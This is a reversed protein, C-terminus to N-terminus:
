ILARYLQCGSNAVQLANKMELLYSKVFDLWLRVSARSEFIMSQSYKGLFWSKPVEVHSRPMKLKANFQNPKVEFYNLIRSLNETPYIVYGLSRGRPVGLQIRKRKDLALKLEFSNGFALEVKREDASLDHGAPYFQYGLSILEEVLEKTRHKRSKSM